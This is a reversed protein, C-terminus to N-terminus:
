WILSNIIRGIVGIAVMSIFGIICFPIYYKSPTKAVVLQRGISQLQGGIAYCMPVLIAVQAPTVIGAEYLAPLMAIGATAKLWATALAVGAEGSMGFLRMLPSLIWGMVTLVGTIELFYIVVFAFIYAPLQNNVANNFGKAVGKLFDNLIEGKPAWKDKEM